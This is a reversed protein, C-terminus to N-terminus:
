LLLCRENEPATLDWTRVTGDDGGSILMNGSDTFTVSYVSGAHGTLTCLTVGRNWSWVKLADDYSSSALLLGDPSFAVDSVELDHGKLTQLLEGTALEWVRISRDASGSAVYQGNNSMAISTVKDPSGALTLITANQAIDWVQILGDQDGSVVINDDIPHFAIANISAGATEKATSLTALRQLNSGATITWLTLDGRSSGAAVMKGKANAAVSMIPGSETQVSDSLQGSPTFWVALDGSSSGTVLLDNTESFTLDNVRGDHPLPIAQKSNRDWLQATRDYSGSAILPTNDAASVSLVTATHTGLREFAPDSVSLLLERNIGGSVLQPGGDLQDALLLFIGGIGTILGATVLVALFSFLNRNRQYM